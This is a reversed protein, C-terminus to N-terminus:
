NNKVSYIKGPHLTRNIFFYSSFCTELPYFLGFPKRHPRAIKDWLLFISHQSLVRMGTCNVFQLSLPNHLRYWIYPSECGTETDTLYGTRVPGAYYNLGDCLSIVNLVIFLQM